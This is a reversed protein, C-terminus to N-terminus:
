GFAREYDTSTREDSGFQGGIDPLVVIIEYSHFWRSEPKSPLASAGASHL